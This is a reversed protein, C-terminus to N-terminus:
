GATVLATGVVLLAFGAFQTATIPTADLGLWGFRDAVAAVVLQAVVLAAAVGGAGLARVAVISVVVIAAGGLAGIVHVPRYGGLGALDGTSRTAVLLVGVVTASLLLSAFAAALDGTIRALLANAPPQLAILGGVLLTLILALWRDM